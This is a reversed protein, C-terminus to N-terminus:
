IDLRLKFQTDFDVIERRGREPVSVRVYTGSMGSKNAVATGAIMDVSIVFM